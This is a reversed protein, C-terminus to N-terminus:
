QQGPPRDAIHDRRHRSIAWGLARKTAGRTWLYPGWSLWPVVAPGKNTDYNLNGDIQKEILWKVSFCSEFAYPEPNLDASNTDYARTRSSLYAMKLNPYRSRAIRLIIEEDEQLAQAHAPFAGSASPSRRAHKM